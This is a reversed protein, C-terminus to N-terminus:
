EGLLHSKGCAPRRLRCVGVSCQQMHTQPTHAAARQKHAPMEAARPAAFVGRGSYPYTPNRGMAPRVKGGKSEPRELAAGASCGLAGRKALQHPLLMGGM